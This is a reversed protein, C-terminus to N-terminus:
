SPGQKIWYRICYATEYMQSYYIGEPKILYHKVRDKIDDTAYAVALSGGVSDSFRIIFTGPEETALLKNCEKKTVLGYIV